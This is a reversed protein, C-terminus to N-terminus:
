HRKRRARGFIAVLAALYVLLISWDGTRSYLTEEEALPVQTDLFGATNLDLQAIVQGKSDIVGSVGTNAVRVLARGQEVARLRAQALHQYPGIWNGFWADNTIQLIWDPTENTANVDQPFVAEYCILPLVKGYAGLDLLRAGPGATYGFGHEEVFSGFPLVSLFGMAPIYEGFPVLHHKDYVESVTGDAGLVALSNFAQGDQSRQIGVIVPVDGAAQSIYELASDANELLTPVATEPWIILDPKLDAKIATFAIQRDFFSQVHDRHWKLHQPANPQILRVTPGERENLPQSLLWLAVGYVGAFIGVATAVRMRNPWLGVALAPCILTFATLGHPGIWAALQMPAWGIWVHGILAWPFGTLVYSRALEAAGLAFAWVLAGTVGASSLGKAFAGAIGWFLALGASMGLLAFPAMWGHRSVDVLFPEIIWVMALAFYGAGFGWAIRAAQRPGSSKLHLYVFCALGCLTFWPLSVPAQGLASFAGAFLALWFPKKVLGSTM